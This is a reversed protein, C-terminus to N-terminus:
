FNNYNNTIQIFFLSVLKRNDTRTEGRAIEVDGKENKVKKPWHGDGSIDPGIGGRRGNREEAILQVALNERFNILPREKPRSADSVLKHNRSERMLILASSISLDILFWFLYTWWRRSTRASSYAMRMQDSRDLGNM